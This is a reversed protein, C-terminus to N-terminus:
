MFICVCVMTFLLEFLKKARMGLFLKLEQWYPVACVYFEELVNVDNIIM